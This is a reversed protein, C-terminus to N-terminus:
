SDENKNGKGYPCVLHCDKHAAECGSIKCNPFDDILDAAVQKIRRPIITHLVWNVQDLLMDVTVTKRKLKVNYELNSIADEIAALFERIAEARAEGLTLELEEIRENKKQLLILADYLTLLPKGTHEYKFFKDVGM